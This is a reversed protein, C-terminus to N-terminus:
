RRKIVQNWDSVFQDVTGKGSPTNYLQKWIAGLGQIDKSEPLEISRKTIRDEYLVAAIAAAFKDNGALDQNIDGSGLASIKNYVDINNKKISNMYFSATEPEIQFLSLAPGVTQKRYEFMGSEHIATGLLLNEMSDSQLDLIKLVPRITQTLLENAMSSSKRDEFDVKWDRIARYTTKDLFGTIEKGSMGLSEQLENILAPSNNKSVKKDIQGVLKAVEADIDGGFPYTQRSLANSNYRTGVADTDSGFPYNTSLPVSRGAGRVDGSNSNGATVDGRIEFPDSEFDYIPKKGTQYWRDRASGIDIGGDSTTGDATPHSDLFRQARDLNDAEAVIGRDVGASWDDVAAGGLRLGGGGGLRLGGTGKPVLAYKESEAAAAQM